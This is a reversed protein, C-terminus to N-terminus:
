NIKKMDIALANREKAPLNEIVNAASALPIEIDSISTMSRRKALAAEIMKSGRSQKNNRTIRPVQADMSVATKQDLEIESSPLTNETRTLSLKRKKFPIGNVRKGENNILPTNTKSGNPSISVNHSSFEVGKKSVPTSLQQTQSNQSDPLPSLASDSKSVINIDELSERSFLRPPTRHTEPNKDVNENNTKQNSDIKNAEPLITTHSKELSLVSDSTDPCTQPSEVKNQWALQNQLHTLATDLGNESVTTTGNDSKPKSKIFRGSKGREVHIKQIREKDIIEVVDDDLIKDIPTSSNRESSTSKENILLPQTIRPSIPGEPIEVNNIQMDDLDERKKEDERVDLNLNLFLREKYGLRQYNVIKPQKNRLYNYKELLDEHDEKLNEFEHRLKIHQNFLESFNITNKNINRILVKLLARLHSSIRENSLYSDITQTSDM